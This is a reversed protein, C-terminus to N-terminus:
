RTKQLSAETLYYSPSTKDGYLIRCKDGRIRMDVVQKINISPGLQLRDALIVVGDQSPDISKLRYARDQRTFLIEERNYKLNAMDIDADIYRMQKCSGKTDYVLLKGGKKSKVLIYISNGSKGRKLVAETVSELCERVSQFVRNEILISSMINTIDDTYLEISDTNLTSIKVSTITCGNRMPSYYYLYRDDCGCLFVRRSLCLDNITTYIGMELDVLILPSAFIDTKMHGILFNNSYQVFSGTLKGQRYANLMSIRVRMSSFIDDLHTLPLISKSPATEGGYGLTIKDKVVNYFFKSSECIHLINNKPLITNKSQEM